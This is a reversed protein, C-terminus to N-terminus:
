EQALGQVILMMGRPPPYRREGSQLFTAGGDLRRVVVLGDRNTLSYRSAAVTVPPETRRLAPLLLLGLVILAAVAATVAAAVALPRRRRGGAEGSRLAKGVVRDVQEARPELTRRLRRDVEGDTEHRDAM